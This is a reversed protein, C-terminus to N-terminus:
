RREAVFRHAYEAFQRAPDTPHLPTVLYTSTSPLPFMTFPIREVSGRLLSKRVTSLSFFSVGLQETVWELAVSGQSVQITRITSTMTRLRILLEDWYGPHHHTFLPYQQFLDQVRRM